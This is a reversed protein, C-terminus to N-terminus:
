KNGEFTSEVEDYLKKKYNMVGFDARSTELLKLITRVVPIYCSVSADERQLMKSADHFPRLCEVLKEMLEWDRLNLEEKPGYGNMNSYMIAANLAPKIQLMREMMMFIIDWRTAGHKLLVLKELNLLEQQKELENCFKNSHSAHASIDKVKDVLAAPGKMSLVQHKMCLQLTHILCAIRYLVYCDELRFIAYM